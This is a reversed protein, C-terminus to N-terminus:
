NVSCIFYQNNLTLISGKLTVNNDGFDVILEVKTPVGQAKSTGPNYIYSKQGTVDEDAFVGESTSFKIRISTAYKAIESSWQVINKGSVRKFDSKIVQPKVIQAKPPNEPEDAGVEIVVPGQPGKKPTSTPKPQQIKKSKKNILLIVIKNQKVEGTFLTNEKLQISIYSKLSGADSFVKRGDPIMQNETVLYFYRTTNTDISIDTEIGTSPLTMNSTSYQQTKESEFMTKVDEIEM